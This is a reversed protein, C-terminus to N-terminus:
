ECRRYSSTALREAYAQKLTRSDIRVANIRGKHSKTEITFLGAPGVVVHDINGRSTQLDHLAYWGHPRLAELIRGVREEGEAGSRWRTLVPTAILDIAYMGAIAVAEVAVVMWGLGFVAISLPIVGRTPSGRPAALDVAYM